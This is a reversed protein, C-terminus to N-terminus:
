HYRYITAREIKAQLPDFRWNNGQDNEDGNLRRGPIWQGNRYHGEEISALGVWAASPDRPTFSVRFGKGAGIFTDAGEQLILGYGSEAHYGFVQDLSVHVTIGHMVFDVEPHSKDLLFGHVDGSSQAALLQPALEALVQYSNTLAAVGKTVSEMDPWADSHLGADIGFPSFGMAAHEGVAYFVNAAGAVGGVTEPIFLPNDPRHYRSCWDAFDSAYLDPSYIDIASGAAKWVDIVRPQPGGSPYNGPPTDRGGLWANVYMPLSYAAKGRAAVSQVYRAYNWAMFIEDTRASDGFIETWTGSTKAGHQEWLTRLEPNLMEHHAALYRTLEAPVPGAFAREAAASHDRSAGLIGVENEVQVMLVTHDQADVERLHAMLAAFAHGDAEATAPALTSLITVPNGNEFVRPFRQTDQKVWVPPYSSMGNKWAALWLFVIHLHQERAQALLGDVLTFDYHGETPEVLEWSVPTLVTNLGMAALKQWEPKMYDLSSSSSNHLEGALMLYPKGDVMLQTTQGRQELRPTGAASPAPSQAYAIGTASCSLLLAVSLSFRQYNM